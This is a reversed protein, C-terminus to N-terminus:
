LGVKGKRNRFADGERLRVEVLLVLSCQRPVKLVPLFIYKRGGRFTIDKVVEMGSESEERKTEKKQSVLLQEGV